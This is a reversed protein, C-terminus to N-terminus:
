RPIQIENAVIKVERLFSVSRQFSSPKKCAWVPHVEDLLFSEPKPEEILQTQLKKLKKKMAYNAYLLYSKILHKDYRNCQEREFFHLM